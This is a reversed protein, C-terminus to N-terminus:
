IYNQEYCTANKERGTGVESFHLDSVSFTETATESVRCFLGGRRAGDNEDAFISMFVKFHLVPV